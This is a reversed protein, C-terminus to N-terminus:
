IIHVVYFMHFSLENIKGRYGIGIFFTEIVMYLFKYFKFRIFSFTSFIAVYKIVGYMGSIAIWAENKDDRGGTPGKFKENLAERHENLGHAYALKEAYIWRPNRLSGEDDGNEEINSNDNITITGKGKNNSSARVKKRVLNSSNGIESDDTDTNTKPLYESGESNDHPNNELDDEYNYDSKKKSLFQRVTKRPQGSKSSTGGENSINSSNNRMPRSNSPEQQVKGKQHRQSSNNIKQANSKGQTKKPKPM